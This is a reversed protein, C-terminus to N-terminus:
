VGTHRRESTESANHTYFYSLVLKEPVNTSAKSSTTRAARHWDGFAFAGSGKQWHLPPWESTETSSELGTTGEGRKEYFGDAQDTITTVYQDFSVWPPLSEEYGAPLGSGAYLVM